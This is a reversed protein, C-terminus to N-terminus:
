GRREILLGMVRHADRHGYATLHLRHSREEAWGQDTLRYPDPGPASRPDLQRTPTM